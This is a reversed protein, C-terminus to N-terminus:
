VPLVLVKFQEHPPPPTFMAQGDEDKFEKYRLFYICQYGLKKAAAASFHSSCEVHVMPCQNELALEKTKDFLATCVGRGKFADDVAVIKIHMIREVEPYKGFIDSERKAKQFLNRFKKFSVSDEQHQHNDDDNNHETGDRTIIENLIVGMLDGNDSVAKFVIGTDLARLGFTELKEMSEADESIKSSVVLPERRFFFEKIFGVIIPKDDPAMPVINFKGETESM